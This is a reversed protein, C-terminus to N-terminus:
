LSTMGDGSTAPPCPSGGWRDRVSFPIGRYWNLAGTLAGPEAMAEAYRDAFDAPLGSNRLSKALAAPGDIRAAGAASLVGHVVLALGAQQDVAVQRVGCPTADVSRDAFRGSRCALRGDGLGPQRGLRSWRHPSPCPRCHGTPRRCRRRDGRNPLGGGPRDLPPTYGRQTPTLTRLGAANLRSAVADFSFPQQPFGHLLVM